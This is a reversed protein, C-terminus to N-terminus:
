AGETGTAPNAGSSFRDRVQGRFEEVKGSISSRIEEGSAPAFLMGAGVGLGIGAAFMLVNRVTHDEGYYLDHARDRLDGIRESARDMGTAIRDRADEAMGDTQELFCVATKLVSKLLSSTRNKM